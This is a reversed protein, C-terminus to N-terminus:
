KAEFERLFLMPLNTYECRHYDEGCIYIIKEPAYNQRVLDHLPLGRHVSGYIVIDFEKNRIRRKIHERNVPLDELIKTYTMGKGYLKHLEKDYTKYIHKIKPYDVVKENFLQKLGILTCCRLYDPRSNGSLFLINGNGSYGSTKLVYDAMRETTLHNRTHELLKTLIEFYKAKDFKEHDIKLYSVGELNMAEKILDRPLFFMTNLDCKDLDLFYPICGNALIEYHRM